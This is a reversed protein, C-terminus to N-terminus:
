ILDMSRVVTNAVARRKTLTLTLAPTLALTLALTQTQSRILDMPSVVTNAVAVKRMAAAAKHDNRSGFGLLASPSRPSHNRALRRQEELQHVNLDTGEKKLLEHTASTSRTEPYVDYNMVPRGVYLSVLAATFKDIRRIIKSLDVDM